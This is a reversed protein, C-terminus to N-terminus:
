SLNEERKAATMRFFVEELNAVETVSEFIPIARDAALVAVREPSSGVIDVRDTAVVRANAGDKLVASLLEDVKSTRVHIVSRIDAGKTLEDLPADAVKRGDHLIVVNDVIQSVESLAHSSFLITRGEDAFGRLLDRVWRVGDPDLGNTPEDLILTDPDGLLASAIGLRQRMGLSFGGVRRDGADELGVVHLMEDVRRVEIDGSAALVRLHNRATRGPYFSSADLLAGVRRLPDALSKYLLGDITCRGHSPEVLGLLVRLTTTKGAGNEGLFGTIAGPSVSFSLDDVAVVSGFRKILNEIEIIAM